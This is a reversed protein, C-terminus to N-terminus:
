EQGLLQPEFGVGFLIKKGKSGGQRGTMRV